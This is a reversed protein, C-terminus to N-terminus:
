WIYPAAKVRGAMPMDEGGKQRAGRHL